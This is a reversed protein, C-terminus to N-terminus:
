DETTFVYITQSEFTEGPRLITNPYQPQNPSDPYHQTELCFGGRCEYMCGNKGKLTGKIFNGAYFQVGPETTFVEMVRGSAPDTVRAALSLAGKTEKNLCFNHDYGKAFRLQDDEDNIREGIPTPVTFDFATGKVPKLEGYPISAEDTPIFHDANIMMVQAGHYGSEHGALNFYSHNTLNIPTAKDTEATYDIKLANADTLTYTLTLCLNGPYNEEGDKSLYDMKVANQEALVEADWVVKDFGREGGHLSNPGNNLFLQYTEGDLTFKGDKIRNAFRGICSGFYPTGQIYEEATDHGLVIDAMTGDKAPAEISVITGGHNMIKVILGNANTLTFLEVAEGFRNQGFPQKVVAM